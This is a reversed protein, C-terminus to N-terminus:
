LLAEANEGHMQRVKDIWAQNKLKFMHPPLWKGPKRSKGVVGEFTMGPMTGSRVSEVFDETCRGHHLVGPLEVSKAFAKLFSEPEMQGQRELDVDILISKHDDDNEHYGAFSKPGFFEFYCVAGLKTLEMLVKSISDEQERILSIAKGFKPDSENLLLKRSGFKYFRKKPNWEARINSGDLKDFVTYELSTDFVQGISPYQKM